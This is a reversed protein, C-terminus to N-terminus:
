CRLVSLPCYSGVGEEAVNFEEFINDRGRDRVRASEPASVVVDADPRTPVRASKLSKM